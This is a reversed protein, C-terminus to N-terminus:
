ENIVITSEKKARLTLIYLTIASALADFTINKPLIIYIQQSNQIKNDLAYKLNKIKEDTLRM